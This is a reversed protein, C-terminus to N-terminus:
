SATKKVGRPATGEGVQPVRWHEPFVGWVDRKEQLRDRFWAYRQEFKDLRTAHAAAVAAGRDDAAAASVTASGVAGGFAAQYISMERDCLWDM